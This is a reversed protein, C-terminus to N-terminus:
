RAEVAGLSVAFDPTMVQRVVFDDLIVYTMPNAVNDATIWRLHLSPSSISPTFRLRVNTPPQAQAFNWGSVTRAVTGDQFTFTPVNPPFATFQEPPVYNTGSGATGNAGYNFYVLDAAGGQMLGGLRFGVEYAVGPSPTSSLAGLTPTAITRFTPDAQNDYVCLAGSTATQTQFPQSPNCGVWRNSTWGSPPIAGVNFREAFLYVGDTRTVNATPDDFYLILQNAGTLPGPPVDAPLKAIMVLQNTGVQVPDDWQSDLPTSGLYVALDRGNPDSMGRAILSAHPVPISLTTGAPATATGPNSAVVAARHRFNGAFPGLGPNPAGGLTGADTLGGLGADDDSAPFDPSGADAGNHGPNTGADPPRNVPGPPATGVNFAAPLDALVRNGDSARLRIGYGGYGLAIGLVQADLETPSRLKVQDRPLRVASGDSMSYIDVALDTSANGMGSSIDYRASTPGFGRGHIALAFSSSGPDGM